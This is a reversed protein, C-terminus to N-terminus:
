EDLVERDVLWGSLTGFTRCASAAIEDRDRPGRGREELWALVQKWRTATHAGDGTFFAAGNEQGVGLRQRLARAIVQGGLCAGEVVYVAGAVHDATTFEPVDACVPSLEPARGFARLDRLLLSARWVLPLGLPPSAAQWRSLSDELPAYFGFLATLLDIYRHLTLREDLIYSLGQDLRRHHDATARRLRGHVALDHVTQASADTRYTRDSASQRSPM